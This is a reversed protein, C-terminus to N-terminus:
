ENLDSYILDAYSAYEVAAACRIASAALIVAVPIAATLLEDLRVAVFSFCILDDLGSNIDFEVLIGFAFAYGFNWVAAVSM